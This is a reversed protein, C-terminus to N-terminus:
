NTVFTKPINGLKWFQVQQLTFERVKQIAERFRASYQKIDILLRFCMKLALAIGVFYRSLSSEKISQSVRDNLFDNCPSRHDVSTKAFCCAAVRVLRLLLIGCRFSGKGNDINALSVSSVSIGCNGSTRVTRVTVSLLFMMMSSYFQTERHKVWASPAM